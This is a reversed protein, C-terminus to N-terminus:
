TSDSSIPPSYNTGDATGMSLYDGELKIDIAIHDRFMSIEGLEAYKPLLNENITKKLQTELENITTTMDKLSLPSKDINIVINDNSIHTITILNHEKLIEETFMEKLRKEVKKLVELEM